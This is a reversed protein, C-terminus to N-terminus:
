LSYHHCTSGTLLISAAHDHLSLNLAGSGLTHRYHGCVPPLSLAVVPCAPQSSQVSHLARPLTLSRAEIYHFFVGSMLKLGRCMCLQVGVHMCICMQMDVFMCIYTHMSIYMCICCFLLFLLLLHIIPAQPRDTCYGGRRPDERKM